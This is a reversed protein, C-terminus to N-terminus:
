HAACDICVPQLDVRGILERGEIDAPRRLDAGLGLGDVQKGVGHAWARSAQRAEHPAARRVAFISPQQWRGPSPKRAGPLAPQVDRAREADRTLLATREPATLALEFGYLEDTGPDEARDAFISVRQHRHKAPAWPGSAIPM